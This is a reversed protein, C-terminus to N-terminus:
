ARRRDRAVRCLRLPLLAVLPARRGLDERDDRDFAAAFREAEAASEYTQTISAKRIPAPAIASPPIASSKRPTLASCIGSSSM